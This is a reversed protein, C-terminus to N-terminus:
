MPTHQAQCTAAKLACWKNGARQRRSRRSVEQSSARGFAVACVFGKGRDRSENPHPLVLRAGVKGSLTYSSCKAYCCNTKSEVPLLIVSWTAPQQWSPIIRGICVRLVTTTARLLETAGVRIAAAMGARCDIWTLNPPREKMRRCYDERSQGDNGISGDCRVLVATSRM